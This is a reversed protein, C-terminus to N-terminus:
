PKSEKRGIRRRAVFCVVPASLLSIATTAALSLLLSLGVSELISHYHRGILAFGVVLNQAYYASVELFSNRDIVLNIIEKIDYPKNPDDPIIDRMKEDIRVDSDCYEFYPPNELNNSPLFSLLKQVGRITNEEDEYVFHAVGSKKMHVMAGGLDDFSVDENLVEKVVNPGTVFMYSTKNTMFVFDTISPSYVAGGAAPGMIVSIQPIVGSSNVNRKFIAAYGALSSVGEQIRAGGSDILGIIPAGMKLAMEQIKAIKSAHVSGLSGGVVNFDQSYAFALRGSIKGYGVIVGDGYATVKKGFDGGAPAPLSYADIEEFTDTDFLMDVRERATMKGKSHQKEAVSEGLQEAYTKSRELFRTFLKGKVDM